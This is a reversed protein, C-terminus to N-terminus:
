SQLQYSDWDHVFSMSKYDITPIEGQSAAYPLLPVNDSLSRFGEPTYHGSTYLTDEVVLEELLRICHVSLKQGRFEKRIEIDCITAVDNGGVLFRIMGANIGNVQFWATFSKRSRNYNYLSDEIVITEAVSASIGYADLM